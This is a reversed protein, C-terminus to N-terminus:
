PLRRFEIRWVWPNSEWTARKGNIHDWLREFTARHTYLPVHDEKSREVGEARADEESIDQLREVRVSVVDLTLRGAWRPMHISPFWKETHKDKRAGHFDLFGGSRYIWREVLDFDAGVMNKGAGGAHFDIETAHGYMHPRWTERVWLRTGATGFPCRAGFGPGPDAFFGWRDRGQQIAEFVEGHEFGPAMRVLRRTQTKRGDLIARVLPGSFLIPRESM